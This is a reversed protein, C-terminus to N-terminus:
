EDDVQKGAMLLGIQEKTTTKPDVIGMLQGSYMVAVRDSVQMVEDLELSMLIIAKGADRQEILQRHINEIAGIDVGRTPQSAILLEGAREIERGIILKQQNGGSLSSAPVNIGAGSRVDYKQIVVEANQKIKKWNLIKNKQYKAQHYEKTVLNEELSFELILGERHRDQPINGIGLDNRQRIKLNNIVENNLKIEGSKIKQMGTIADIIESQGNGDVGAIGLIEGANVKFSVNKVVEVHRRDEVVLNEVSIVEAGLKAEDKKVGFSVERGVMLKAMEAESVTEVDVCGVSKGARIVTCRDAVAKIESLKHTILLVSVGQAKLNRIIEMLEDIEQPTLAGTPEDFIMIKSEKYLMKLIEVKQQQGVRLNSIKDKADIQFNYKDIIAQVKKEADAIKIFGAKTEESGLIINQTVTFSDVLKFHQHVMGIGLENAKNPDTIIVDDGNIKIKGETLTYIGFLLNMLTSKGAGNEGLLAHVEGKKVTLNIQDNAKFTGFMKTVNIMEVANM